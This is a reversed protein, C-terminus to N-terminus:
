TYLVVFETGQARRWFILVAVMVEIMSVLIVFILGRTRCITICKREVVYEQEKEKKEEKM